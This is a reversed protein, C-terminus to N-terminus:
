RTALRQLDFGSTMKQCHTFWDKLAMTLKVFLLPSAGILVLYAKILKTFMILDILLTV